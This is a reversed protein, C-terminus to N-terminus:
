ILYSQILWQRITQFYLKLKKFIIKVVNPLKTSDYSISRDENQSIYFSCVTNVFDTDSSSISSSGGPMISCYKNVYLQDLVELSSPFETKLQYLNASRKDYCYNLVDFM